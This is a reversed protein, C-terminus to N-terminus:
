VTLPKAHLGSDSFDALSFLFAVRSRVNALQPSSLPTRIKLKVMVCHYFNSIVFVDNNKVMAPILVLLKSQKTM